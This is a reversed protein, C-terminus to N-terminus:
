RFSIQEGDCDYQTHPNAVKVIKQYTSHLYNNHFEMAQKQDHVTLSVSTRFPVFSVDKYQYSWDLSYLFKMIAKAEEIAGDVIIDNTITKEGKDDIVFITRHYIKILKGIEPNQADIWQKLYNRNYLRPHLGCIWGCAFLKESNIYDTHIWCKNTKCWGFIDTRLVNM